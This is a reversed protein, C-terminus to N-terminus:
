WTTETAHADERRPHISRGCRERGWRRRRNAPAGRGEPTARRRHTPLGCNYHNAARRSQRERRGACPVCLFRAPATAHARRFRRMRPTDPVCAFHEHRPGRARRRPNRAPPACGAGRSFWRVPGGQPEFRSDDRAAAKTPGRSEVTKDGAKMKNDICPVGDHRRDDAARRCGGGDAQWRRRFSKSLMSFHFRFWRKAHNEDPRRTETM